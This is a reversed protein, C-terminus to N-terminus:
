PSAESSKSGKKCKVRYYTLPHRMWDRKCLDDPDYCINYSIMTACEPTSYETGSTIGLIHRVQYRAMNEDFDPTSSFARIIEEEGMGLAHLFTTIAFRAHHPPNEGGQLMALIRKMCPPFCEIEVKGVPRAKYKARREEALEKVVKLDDEMEELISTPLAIPLTSRYHEKVGEKLLRLLEERRVRVWGRNLARNALRWEKGSLGSSLRLYDTFHLLLEELPGDKLKLGLEGAVEMVVDWRGDRSDEWMYREVLESETHSHWQILYPEAFASVLMRGYVFSLLERIVEEEGRLSPRKIREGKVAAIVRDLGRKRVGAYLVDGAIEKPSIKLEKLYRRAVETFPYRAVDRREMTM